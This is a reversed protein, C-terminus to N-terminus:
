VTNPDLGDPAEGDAQTDDTAETEDADDGGPAGDDGASAGDDGEDGEDGVQTDDDGEDGDTAEDTPAEPTNTGGDIGAGEPVPATETEEETEPKPPSAPNRYSDEEADSRFSWGDKQADVVDIPHFYSDAMEDKKMIPM